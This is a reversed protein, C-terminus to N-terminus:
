RNPMIATAGIAAAQAANQNEHPVIGRARPNPAAHLKLM